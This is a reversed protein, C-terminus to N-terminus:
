KARALNGAPDKLFEEKCEKSCFGYLKGKYTLTDEVGSHLLMGCYPDKTYGFALKRLDPKPKSFARTAM